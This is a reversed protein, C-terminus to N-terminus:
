PRAPPLLFGCAALLARGRQSGLFQLYRAAAPHSKGRATVIAGQELAPYSGAPLVWGNPREKVHARSVLGAQANGSEVFQMTQAVNEGYVLKQQLRDWLGAQQLAAKAARGYPAVEPSAIAIRRVAPDALLSLGASTDLKPDASWLVLQGLAYVVMSAADALGADALAQPYGTDASMLIDFPAGNRIQAYFNGSAGVTVSTEGDFGANLSPMCTALDAAAAIRLPAAATATGSIAMCVLFPFLLHRFFTM